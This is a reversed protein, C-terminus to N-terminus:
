AALAEELRTGLTPEGCAARLEDRLMVRAREFILREGFSLPKRQRVSALEGLLAAVQEADNSALMENYRRQRRNWNARKIPAVTARVIGLLGQVADGTVVARLSKTARAVPVWVRLGDSGVIRLARVMQDGMKVSELADIRGLGCSPIMVHDGPAFALVGSM